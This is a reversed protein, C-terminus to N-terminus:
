ARTHHHVRQIKAMRQAKAHSHDAHPAKTEPLQATAFRPPLNLPAPQPNAGPQYVLFLGSVVVVAFTLGALLIALGSGTPRPLQQSM